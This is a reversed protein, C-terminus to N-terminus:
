ASSPMRSRTRDRPSPSTYLLCGIRMRSQQRDPGGGGGADVDGVLYQVVVSDGHGTTLRRFTSKGDALDRMLNGGLTRSLNDDDAVLWLFVRSGAIKRSNDFHVVAAVEVGHLPIKAVGVAQGNEDVILGARRLPATAALLAAKRVRWLAYEDIIQNAFTAPIARLLRIANRDLRELGLEAAFALDVLRVAVLVKGADIAKTRTEDGDLARSQAIRVM